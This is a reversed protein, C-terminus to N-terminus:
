RTVCSLKGTNGGVDDNLVDRYSYMHLIYTCVYMCVYMCVYIHPRPCLSLSGLVYFGVCGVRPRANFARAYSFASPHSIYHSKRHLTSLSLDGGRNHTMILFNNDARGWTSPTSGDGGVRKKKEYSPFRSKKQM